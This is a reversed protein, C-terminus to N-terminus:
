TSLKWSTFSVTPLLVMKSPTEPRHTLPLNSAMM